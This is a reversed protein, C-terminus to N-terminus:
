QVMRDMEMNYGYDVGDVLDGDLENYDEMLEDIKDLEAKLTLITRELEDRQEQLEEQTLETYDIM